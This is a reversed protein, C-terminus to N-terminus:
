VALDDPLTRHRLRGPVVLYRQALDPGAQDGDGTATTSFPAIPTSLESGASLRVMGIGGPFRTATATALV